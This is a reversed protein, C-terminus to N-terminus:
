IIRKLYNLQGRHRSLHCCLQILFFGISRGKHQPPPDPMEKDLDEETINKFGNQIAQITEDIIMLLEHNTLNKQNFEAERDRVYGNSGLQAGIFHQLNGCIHYCLTGVPNIIGPEASWLLDPDTSQIEEKMALLDRVIIEQTYSLISM